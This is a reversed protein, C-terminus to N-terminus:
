YIEYISRKRKEIICINIVVKKHWKQNKIIKVVKKEDIFKM